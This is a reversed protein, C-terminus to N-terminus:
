VLCSPSDTFPKVAVKDSRQEKLPTDMSAIPISVAAAVPAPPTAFRDPAVHVVFHKIPQVVQARQIRGSVPSLNEFREELTSAAYTSLELNLRPGSRETAVRNHVIVVDADAEAGRSRCRLFYVAVLLIFALTPLVIVLSLEGISLGAAKTGTTTPSLPTPHPPPPALARLLVGNIM